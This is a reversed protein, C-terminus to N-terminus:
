LVPEIINITCVISQIIKPYNEDNLLSGTKHKDYLGSQFIKPLRQLIYFHISMMMFCEANENLLINQESHGTQVINKNM